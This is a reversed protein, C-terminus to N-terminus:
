YGGSGGSGASGGAAVTTTSDSVVTGTAEIQDTTATVTVDNTDILLIQERIPTVDSSAPTITIDVTNGTISNPNFNVLSLTGATYDVTGINNSIETRVGAITKVVRLVGNNDDIKCDTTNAGLSDNYSFNTSTISGVYTDNPHYIENSFKVTYNTAVGTTVSLKKELQINLLNNLISPDVADISATLKSYRFRLDFNTLNSQGFDVITSKVNEAIVAASNQSVRSDYKVNCNLILYIYDPSVIEPTVTIIKRNSLLEKIYDIAATTLTLGSKPKVAIYVKGYVPPDNEDGGWAAISDADNYESTLIRRYDNVTVARNQTEYQKPANQKISSVSERDTGGFAATNTTISVNSYGGITNALRFTAAGNTTNGECILSELIVINGTQIKRGLVDDGFTVEFKGDTSENLFYVNSTSNVTLVDTARTYLHTDSESSSLKLKVSLTSTDTNANPLIFKQDENLTNATYTHTVNVGQRLTVGNAFYQNNSNPSITTSSETNFIFTSNNVTSTFPTNKDITIANPLDGVPFIQLDLVATSGTMSRPVYGIAKARAVVNNRLLATDLFMENSVMNLYFANYHTNYALLDLLVSMSSGEFDYDKFESQSSLFAKLNTKITDFDLETVRLASNAAM